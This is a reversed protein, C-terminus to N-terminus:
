LLMLKILEEQMPQLRFFDRFVVVVVVVANFLLCPSSLSSSKVINLKKFLFKVSVQLTLNGSLLILTLQQFVFIGTHGIKEESM